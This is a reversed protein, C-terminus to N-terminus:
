SLGAKNVAMYKTQENVKHVTEDLEGVSKELLSFLHMIGEKDHLNSKIMSILGVVNSLPRRIEHSNLWAIERLKKNQEELLKSYTRAQDVDQMAGLLRLAQHEEDRIVYGRDTVYKYSGDKCQYRYEASWTLQAGKTLEGFLGIIADRDDPHIRQMKWFINRVVIDDEYGFLEKYGHLWKLEDTTIDYDWILDSSAKTVLEYNHLAINLQQERALLQANLMQEKLLLRNYRSNIIWVMSVVSLVLFLLNKIDYVYQFEAVSRDGKIGNIFWSGIVLWLVGAILYIVVLALTFKKM